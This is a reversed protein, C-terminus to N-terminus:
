NLPTGVMVNQGGLPAGVQETATATHSGTSSQSASSTVTGNGNVISNITGAATTTMTGGTSNIGSTCNTAGAECTTTFTYTPPAFSGNQVQQRLFASNIDANRQDSSKFSWDSYQGNSDASAPSAAALLLSVALLAGGVKSARLNM